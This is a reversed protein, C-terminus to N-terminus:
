ERLLRQEGTLPLRVEIVGEEIHPYRQFGHREALALMSKNDPLVHGM